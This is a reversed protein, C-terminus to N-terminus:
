CSMEKNKFNQESSRSNAKIQISNDPRPKGLLRGKGPSGELGLLLRSARSPQMRTGRPESCTLPLENKKKQKCKGHGPGMPKFYVRTSLLLPSKMGSVRRILHSLPKDACDGNLWTQTSSGRIVIKSFLYRAPLAIHLGASGSQEPQRARCYPPSSPVFPLSEFRFSLRGCVNRPM